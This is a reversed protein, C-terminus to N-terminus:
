RCRLGPQLHRRCRRPRDGASPAVGLLLQYAAVASAPDAVALGIHDLGVIM